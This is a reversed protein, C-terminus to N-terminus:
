WIDHAMSIKIVNINGLDIQDVEVGNFCIILVNFVMKDFSFLIDKKFTEPLGLINKYKNKSIITLLM